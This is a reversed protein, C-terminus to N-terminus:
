CREAKRRSSWPQEKRRTAPQSSRRFRADRECRATKQLHLFITLGIRPLSDSTLSMPIIHATTIISSNSLEAAGAQFLGFDGSLSIFGHAARNGARFPTIMATRFIIGLANCKIEYNNKVRKNESVMANSALRCQRLIFVQMIAVGQQRRCSCEALLM